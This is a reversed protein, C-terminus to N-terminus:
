TWMALACLFSTTGDIVVSEAKLIEAYV